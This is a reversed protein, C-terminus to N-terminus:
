RTVEPIVTVSGEVFRKVAGTDTKVLELDYVGRDWTWASSSTAPIILKIKGTAATIVIGGNETTAEHLVTASKVTARIQM